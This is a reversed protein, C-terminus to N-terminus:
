ISQKCENFVKTFEGKNVIIAEDVYDSTYDLLDVAIWLRQQYGTLKNFRMMDSYDEQDLLKLGKLLTDMDDLNIYETEIINHVDLGNEECVQEGVVRIIKFDGMGKHAIFRGGHLKWNVDGSLFTYRTVVDDVFKHSKLKWGNYELM